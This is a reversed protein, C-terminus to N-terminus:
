EKKLFLYLSYLLSIITAGLAGIILVYFSIKSPFVVSILLIIAGLKFLKSALRHTEDWIKDSSLTWPTRIGIFFNRKAKTLLIGIFYFLIAIAPVIIKGFNFSYGLNYIIAAIEMYLFDPLTM